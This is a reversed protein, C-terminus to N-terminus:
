IKLDKYYQLINQLKNVSEELGGVRNRRIWLERYKAIIRSLDQVLFQREEETINNLTGDKSNLKFRLIM